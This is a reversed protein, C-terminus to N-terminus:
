SKRKLPNEYIGVRSLVSRIMRKVSKIGVLPNFPFQMLSSWNEKIMSKILIFDPYTRYKSDLGLLIEHYARQNFPSYVEMAEDWEILGHALWGPMRQEWYFLDLIRYHHNKSVQKINDFWTKLEEELHPINKWQIEQSLIDSIKIEEESKNSKYFNKSIGPCDGKIALVNNPFNKILGPLAEALFKRGLYYKENHIRTYDLDTDTICNIKRYELSFKSAIKESIMNDANDESVDDYILSYYLHDKALSKSAALILRTDYGATLSVALKHRQAIAFMAKKLHNFAQSKAKKFSTKELTKSPWFRQLLFTNLDLYHNPLIRNVNKYINISGPLWYEKEEAFYAKMQAAEYRPKLILETHQKIINPQSALYFHEKQKHYFVSRLACPDNLIITKNKQHIILVFRGSLRDIFSFDISTRSRKLIHQLLAKNSHEPYENHIFFGLLIGTQKTEEDFFHTLELRDDYLVQAELEKFEFRNWNAKEVTLDNTFLFQRPFNM